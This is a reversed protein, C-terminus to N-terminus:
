IMANNGLRVPHSKAGEKPKEFEYAGSFGEFIRKLLEKCEDIIATNLNINVEQIREIIYGYLASLNKPIDGYSMDLSADLVEIVLKIKSLEKYKREYDKKEIAIKASDLAAFLGEFVKLLV